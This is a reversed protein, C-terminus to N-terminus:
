SADRPVLAKDFTADAKTWKGEIYVEVFYHPWREPRRSVTFSPLIGQWEEPDNGKFGM